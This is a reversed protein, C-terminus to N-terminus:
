PIQATHCSLETKASRYGQKKLQLGNDERGIDSVDEIRLSTAYV